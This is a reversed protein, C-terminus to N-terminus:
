AKKRGRFMGRKKNSQLLQAVRLLFHPLQLLLDCLLDLLLSLQHLPTLLLCRVAEQALLEGQSFELLLQNTGDRQGKNEDSSEKGTNNQEPKESEL